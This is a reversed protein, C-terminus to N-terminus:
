DAPRPIRKGKTRSTLHYARCLACRYPRLRIDAAMAVALAEQETRYRAKKMCIGLKTHVQHRAETRCRM